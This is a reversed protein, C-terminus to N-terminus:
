SFPVDASVALVAGRGGLNPRIPPPPSVLRPPAILPPVGGSRWCADGRRGGGLLRARAQGGAGTGGAVGVRTTAPLRKARTRHARRVLAVGGGVLASM